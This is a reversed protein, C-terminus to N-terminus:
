PGAPAEPHESAMPQEALEEPTPYDDPTTVGNLLDLAAQVQTDYDPNNVEDYGYPVLVDPAIGNESVSHGDPTYWRSITVRVGGGNSLTSWTQVSGKGFTPMGVIMARGHDQLAGAILESASASGQDVLVIMPVDPAVANGLAEYTHERNPGKESLIAGQSIYASAVEISTTLYGGPNGRVDLILGNLDNANMDALAERMAANTSFDFQNLRVYGIEGPLVESSVSSVTIRERNVDIELVEDVGSRKIGLRVSTGSPGRVLAIIEQQTLDTIDDGDVAVILDGVKLGAAQAPSGDFITVLELGGTAEDKDVSAGIGEYGGSMAENIRTFTEADMYETHPDGVAAMMGSLAGEMLTEDDLPDVYNNHLIEWAEWFPAFTEEVDAPQSAGQAQARNDSPAREGLAYGVAFTVMVVLALVSATAVSRVVNLRHM